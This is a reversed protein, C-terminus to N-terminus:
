KEWTGFNGITVFTDLNPTGWPWAKPAGGTERRRESNQAEELTCREMLMEQNASNLFFFLVHYGVNSGLNIDLKEMNTRLDWMQVGNEAFDFLTMGYNSPFM